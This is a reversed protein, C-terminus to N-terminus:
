IIKSNLNNDNKMGLFKTNITEEILEDACEIAMPDLVSYKPTFKVFKMKKLILVLKNAQLWNNVCALAFNTKHKFNDYDKDIRLL